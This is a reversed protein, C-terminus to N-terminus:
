PSHCSTALTAANPSQPYARLLQQVAERAEARDGHECLAQARLVMREEALLGGPFQSAHDGLLRLATAADNRALAARAARLLSLEAQLTSDAPAETAAEPTTPRDSPRARRETPAQPAPQPPPEPALHHFPNPSEDDGRSTTRAPESTRAADQASQHGQTADAPGAMRRLGAIVLVLAAATLLAVAWGLNKRRPEAISPEAQDDDIAVQLREWASARIAPPVRVKRYAALVDRGVLEHRDPDM